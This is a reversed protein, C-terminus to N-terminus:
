RVSERVTTQMPTSKEELVPVTSPHFSTISELYHSGGFVAVLFMNRCMRLLLSPNVINEMRRGYHM